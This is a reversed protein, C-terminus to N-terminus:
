DDRYPESPKVMGTTEAGSPEISTTYMSGDDNLTLVRTSSIWIEWSVYPHRVIRLLKTNPQISIPIGANM